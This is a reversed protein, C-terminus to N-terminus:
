YVGETQTYTNDLTIILDYEVNAHSKLRAKTFSSSGTELSSQHHMITQFEKIKHGM